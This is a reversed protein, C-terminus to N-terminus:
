HPALVPADGLVLLRWLKAGFFAVAGGALGGSAGSGPQLALDKPTSNLQTSWLQALHALGRDLIERSEETHAGKHPGYVQSAGSRGCLPNTVDCAVIIEANKLREDVHTVDIRDIDLLRGGVPDV